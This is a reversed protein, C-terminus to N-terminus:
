CTAEEERSSELAHFEEPFSQVVDDVAAARGAQRRAPAVANM